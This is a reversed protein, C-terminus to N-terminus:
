KGALVNKSLPLSNQALYDVFVVGSFSGRVMLLYTGPLGSSNRYIVTYIINETFDIV